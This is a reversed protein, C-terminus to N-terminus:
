GQAHIARGHAAIEPLLKGWSLWTPGVNPERPVGTIIVTPRSRGAARCEALVNDAEAESSVIAIDQTAPM